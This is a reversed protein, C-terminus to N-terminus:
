QRIIAVKEANPIERDPVFIGLFGLEDAAQAILGMRSILGLTFEGFRARGLDDGVNGEAEDVLGVVEEVLLDAPEFLIEELFASEALAHGPGAELATVLGAGSRVGGTM